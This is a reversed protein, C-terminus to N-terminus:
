RCRWPDAAPWTGPSAGGFGRAHWAPAWGLLRCRSTCRAQALHTNAHRGPLTDINAVLPDFFAPKDFRAACQAYEPNGTVVYMNYLVQAPPQPPNQTDESFFTRHRCARCSM